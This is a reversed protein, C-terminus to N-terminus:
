RGKSMLGLVLGALLAAGLAQVPKRRVLDDLSVVANDMGDIAQERRRRGEHVLTESAKAARRKTASTANKALRRGERVATRKATRLVGEPTPRIDMALGEPVIDPRRAKRRTKRKTKRSVAM